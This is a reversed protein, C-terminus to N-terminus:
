CSSFHAHLVLLKGKPVYSLLEMCWKTYRDSESKFWIILRIRLILSYSRNSHQQETAWSHGVRQLRTSQLVGPKGTRWWVWLKSVNMDTSNTIGDLCRMRQQGRRRRGEIKGLMLTKELQWSKWYTMLHRFYHLKLNVNTREIVIWPQNGKPSVPKIEKCDLPSKLRRWGWLKFADIRQCEGKQPGVGVDM